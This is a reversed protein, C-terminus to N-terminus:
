NSPVMVVPDHSTGCFLQVSPNSVYATAGCSPCRLGQKPKAAKKKTPASTKYNLWDTHIEKPLASYAQDFPGLDKIEHTASRWNSTLAVPDLGVKTMVERWQKGHHGPESHTLQHAMEHVLTSFLQRLDSDALCTTTYDTDLIIQHTYSGDPLVCSCPSFLGRWKGNGNSAISIRCPQLASDFLTRNFYDHAASLKEAEAVTPNHLTSQM